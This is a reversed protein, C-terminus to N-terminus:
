PQEATLGGHVYKTNWRLDVNDTEPLHCSMAGRITWEAVSLYLLALITTRTAEGDYRGSSSSSSSYLLCTLKCVHEKVARPFRPLSRAQCQRTASKLGFDLQKKQTVFGLLSTSIM